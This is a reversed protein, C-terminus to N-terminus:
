FAAYFYTSTITFSNLFNMEIAIGQILACNNYFIIDDVRWFYMIVGRPYSVKIIQLTKM